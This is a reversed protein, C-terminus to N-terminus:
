ERQYSTGNEQVRLFLNNAGLEFKKFRTLGKTDELKSNPDFTSLRSLFTIILVLIVVFTLLRGIIYLINSADKWYGSFIEGNTLLSFAVRIRERFVEQTFPLSFSYYDSELLRDFTSRPPTKDSLFDYSFFYGIHTLLTNLSAWLRSFNSKFILSILSLPTFVILITILINLLKRKNKKEM